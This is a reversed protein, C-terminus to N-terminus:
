PVTVLRTPQGDVTIEIRDDRRMDVGFSHFEIEVARGPPLGTQFTQEAIARSSQGGVARPPLLRIRAPPTSIEGLNTVALIKGRGQGSDRFRVDLGRDRTGVTRPPDFSPSPALDPSRSAPTAKLHARALRIIEEDKFPVSTSTRLTDYGPCELVVAQGPRILFDKEPWVVQTEAGPRVVVVASLPAEREENRREEEHQSWLELALGLASKVGVSPKTGLASKVGVSPKTRRPKGNNPQDRDPLDPLDPLQPPGTEEARNTRSTSIRITLPTIGTAGTLHLTQGTGNPAQRFTVAVPLPNPKAPASPSAAPAVAATTTPDPRSEVRDYGVFGGATFAVMTVVAAATWLRVQLPSGDRLVALPDRLHAARVLSSRIGFFGALCGLSVAVAGVKLWVSAAHVAVLLCVAVAVSLGGTWGALDKYFLSGCAPCSVFTAAASCSPCCSSEADAM